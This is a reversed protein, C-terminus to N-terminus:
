SVEAYFVIPKGQPAQRSVTGIVWSSEGMTLTEGEFPEALMTAVSRMEKRGDVGLSEIARVCARTPRSSPQVTVPLARGARKADLSSAAPATATLTADAGFDELLEVVLPYFEEYVNM